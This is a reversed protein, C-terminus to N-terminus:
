KETCLAPLFSVVVPISRTNQLCLYLDYVTGKSLTFCLGGCLFVGTDLVSFVHSSALNVFGTYIICTTERERARERGRVTVCVCVIFHM